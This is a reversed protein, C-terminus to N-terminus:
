PNEKMKHIYFYVYINALRIAGVLAVGIKFSFKDFSYSFNKM